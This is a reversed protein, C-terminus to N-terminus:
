GKLLRRIENKLANNLCEELLVFEDISMKDRAKFKARLKTNILIVIVGDNKTKDNTYEPLYRKFKNYLSCAKEDISSENLLEAAM